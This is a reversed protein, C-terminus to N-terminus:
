LDKAQRGSRREKERLVNHDLRIADLSSKNSFNDLSELGLSVLKNSHLKTSRSDFVHSLMVNVELLFLEKRTEDSVHSRSRNYAHDPLSLVSDELSALHQTCGHWRVGGGSGDTSIKANFDSAVDTVSGVGNFRGVSLNLKPERLADTFPFAARSAL